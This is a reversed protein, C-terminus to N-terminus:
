RKIPLILFQVFVFSGDEFSRYSREDVFPLIGHRHRDGRGAAFKALQQVFAVGFGHWLRADEVRSAHHERNLIIPQFNPNLARDDPNSRDLRRVSFRLFKINLSLKNFAGGTVDHIIMSYFFLLTRNRFRLNRDSLLM